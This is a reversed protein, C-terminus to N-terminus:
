NTRPTHSRTMLLITTVCAGELAAGLTGSSLAFVTTSNRGYNPGSIILDIPGKEQFYHYLGIQVCTAPTGDILIWEEGGDNKPRTYTLGDDKHLTGPRFYTPKAITHAIHSKGTWSKQTHPVCVSVTEGAAQLESILSHVYPSSLQSPPGDDNTVQHPRTLPPSSTLQSPRSVLIHMELSRFQPHHFHLPIYLKQFEPEQTIM